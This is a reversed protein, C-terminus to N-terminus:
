RAPDHLRRAIGGDGDLPRYSRPDGGRHLAECIGDLQEVSREVVRGGQGPLRRSRRRILRRRPPAVQGRHRDLRERRMAVFQRHEVDPGPPASM